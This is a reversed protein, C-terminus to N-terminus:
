GGVNNVMVSVPPDVGRTLSSPTLLYEPVM